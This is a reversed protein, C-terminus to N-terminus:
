KFNNIIDNINRNKLNEYIIIDEKYIDKLILLNDDTIKKKEKTGKQEYILKKWEINYKKLLIKLQYDLNDLLLVYKCYKIYEYQHLFHYDYIKQKNIIKDKYDKIFLNIDNYKGRKKPHHNYASIFKEIPNRFICFFRKNDSYTKIIYPDHWESIKNFFFINNNLYKKLRFRGWNQDRYTKEISSGGNKPIHIFELRKM